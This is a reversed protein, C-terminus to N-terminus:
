RIGLLYGTRRGTTAPGSEKWRKGDTGAMELRFWSQTKTRTASAIVTQDAAYEWMNVWGRTNEVFNVGNTSYMIRYAAARVGEGYCNFNLNITPLHADFASAPLMWTEVITWDTDNVQDAGEANTRKLEVTAGNSIVTTRSIEGSVFQAEVTGKFKATGNNDVYFVYNPNSYSSAGRGAWLLFSTDPGGIEVRMEGAATNGAFFKGAGTVYLEGALKCTGGKDFFFVPRSSGTTISGVGGWGYWLPYLENATGEGNIELRYNQGAPGTALSGTIIHNATLFEAFVQQANLERTGITGAQIADATITGKVVLQGDIGVYDVGDIEEIIFPMAVDNMPTPPYTPYVNRRKHIIAFKDASIVFASGSEKKGDSNIRAFASLGFGTVYPQGDVDLQVRLSWEGKASKNEADVSSTAVQAIASYIGDQAGAFASLIRTQVPETLPEGPNDPNFDVLNIRSNLTSYIHTERIRGQLQALVYEPNLATQGKIGDQYPYPNSETRDNQGTAENYNGEWAVWYYRVGPQTTVGPIVPASHGIGAHTFFNTTSYGVITAHEFSPSASAWIIARKWYINTGPANPFDWIVQIGDWVARTHVNAPRGPLVLGDYTPPRLFPSGPGPVSPNFAGGGAGPTANFGLGNLSAIGGDILDRFTVKSDLPDGRQREAVEIVEKIATLVVQVNDERPAPISPIRTKRTGM